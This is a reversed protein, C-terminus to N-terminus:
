SHFNANQQHLTMLVVRLIEDLSDEARDIGFARGQNNSTISSKEAGLSNLDDQLDTGGIADLFKDNPFVTDERSGGSGVDDSFVLSSATDEKRCTVIRSPRVSVKADFVVDGVTSRGRLIDGVLDKFLGLRNCAVFDKFKWRYTDQGVKAWKRSKVTIM